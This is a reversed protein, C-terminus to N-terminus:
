RSAPSVRITTLSPMSPMRAASCPSRTRTDPGQSPRRPRPRRSNGVMRPTMTTSSSRSRIRRRTRCIRSCTITSNWVGLIHRRERLLQDVGDHAHALREPPQQREARDRGPGGPQRDRSRRRVRPLRRSGPGHPASQYRQHIRNRHARHASHTGSGVPVEAPQYSAYDPQWSGGTGTPAYRCVGGFTPLYVRDAALAVCGDSSSIGFFRSSRPDGPHHESDQTSTISKARSGSWVTALSTRAITPWTTPVASVRVTREACEIHGFIYRHNCLWRDHARFGTRCRAPDVM